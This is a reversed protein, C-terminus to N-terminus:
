TTKFLSWIKNNLRNNRGDSYAGEIKLGRHKAYKRIVRMQDSISFQWHRKSKRVYVAASTTPLKTKRTNMCLLDTAVSSSILIAAQRNESKPFRRAPFAENPM